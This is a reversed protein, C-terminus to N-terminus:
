GINNPLIEQIIKEIQQDNPATAASPADQVPMEALMRRANNKVSYEGAPHPVIYALLQAARHLQGERTLHRALGLLASVTQPKTKIDLSTKLAALFYRKSPQYDALAWAIQGLHDLALAQGYREGINNFIDLSELCLQRGKEAQGLRWKVLGLHTLSFALAFLNHDAFIRFLEGGKELLQDAQTFDELLFALRGLCSYQMGVANDMRFSQCVALCDEHYRRATQYNGLNAETLGLHMLSLFTVFVGNTQQSIALAQEFYQRASDYRGVYWDILGLQYLPFARHWQTGSETQGTVSLAQRILEQTQEFQGLRLTFWGQFALLHSYIEGIEIYGTSFAAKREQYIQYLGAAAQQFLELGEGYRGSLEYLEGLGRHIKLLGQARGQEVAWTWALRINNIEVDWDILSKKFDRPKDIDRQQVYDGFYMCHRDKAMEYEAPDDMLKELAYERLRGHLSYRGAAEQRVLSHAVLNALTQVTAEAVQLAAELTFGGAFVSLKKYVAQEEESLFGWSYNFVARLSTQREPVSRTRTTLFDRNHEIEHVIERCSLGRIWAAALEIGLPMGELLRCIQVIYPLEVALDFEASVRQARQAFLQVSDFTESGPVDTEPYAMGWLNFIWEEFLNLGQRSTVILKLGPAQALLKIVVKVYNLLHEFSDLVLLLTKERLANLLQIQPSTSGTFQLGMAAGIALVLPNSASGNAGDTPSVSGLPVFYIGDRFPTDPKLQDFAVRQALRTKGMGGPGTITLLRCEPRALLAAIQTQEVQRGVFSTTAARLNHPPLVDPEVPPAPAVPELQVPQPIKWEGSRIAEALAKTEAAPEVGLEAALLRRCTDYQALAASVQGEAALLRMLQRYGGEHWPEISLLRRALSIGTTFQRQALAIDAATGLVNLALQRLREREVRVWEEFLEAEPVYFDDLFDGRYLEAAAALNTGSEAANELTEVDLWTHSHRNFEVTRRTTIIADGVAKHLLSLTVRLNSRAVEEPMESWLLGALAARSCPQRTVALYALLAQGKVSTLGPLPQGNREFSPKGLLSLRLQDPM